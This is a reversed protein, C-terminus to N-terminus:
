FFFLEYPLFLEKGRKGGGGGLFSPFLISPFNKIIKSGRGGKFLLSNKAQKTPSIFGLVELKTSSNQWFLAIKEKFILFYTFKNRYIPM